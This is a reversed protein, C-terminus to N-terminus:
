IRGEQYYVKNKYLIRIITSEQMHNEFSVSVYAFVVDLSELSIKKKVYNGFYLELFLEEVLFQSYSRDFTQQCFSFIIYSSRPMVCQMKPYCVADQSSVVCRFPRRDPVLDDQSPVFQLKIFNVSRFNGFIPSLYRPTKSLDHHSQSNPQLVFPDFRCSSKGFNDSM